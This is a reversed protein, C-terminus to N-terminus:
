LLRSVPPGRTKPQELRASGRASQATAARRRVDRVIWEPSASSGDQSGEESQAGSSAKASSSPDVRARRPHGGDLREKAGQVVSARPRAAGPEEQAKQQPSPGSPELRASSSSRRTKVTHFRNWDRQIIVRHISRVRSQPGGHASPSRDRSSRWCLTRSHM